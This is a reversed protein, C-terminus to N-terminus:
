FSVRNTTTDQIFTRIRLVAALYDTLYDNTILAYFHSTDSAMVMSLLIFGVTAAVRPGSPSYALSNVSSTVLV